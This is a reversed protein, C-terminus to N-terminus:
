STENLVSLEVQTNVFVQNILNEEESMIKFLIYKAKDYQDKDEFDQENLRDVLRQVLVLNNKVTSIDVESEKQELDIANIIVELEENVDIVIKDPFFQQYFSNSLDKFLQNSSKFKDWTSTIKEVKIAFQNQIDVDPVPIKLSDLLQQSINQINAGRGNQLMTRKFTENRFLHALYIPNIQNSKVRYRICFGSFTIKEDGPYVVVCRGILDKNGNSRVFVLDENRLFFDESPYTSLNISSLNNSGDIKWFSKFDGVGLTKIQYGQEDRNFNLGNKLTGHNTLSDLSWGNPNGIPDGFMELFTSELLEYYMDIIRERKDLLAQVKDLIDVIKSQAGLDPEFNVTSELYRDLKLNIIGTTKNQFELVKRKKYNNSLLHFLYRPLIKDRRPRLVTTFNNCLYVEDNPGEFYVVRGVPQSPSGGSKEIIIDGNQLKKREIKHPEIERKVINDFSITGFNTFNATRIINVATGSGSDEEGWEGSIKESILDIIKATEM